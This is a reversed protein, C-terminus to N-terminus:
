NVFDIGDGGECTMRLHYDVISNICWFDDIQIM